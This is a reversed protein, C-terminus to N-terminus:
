SHSASQLQLFALARIGLGGVGQLEVVQPLPADGDTHDKPYGDLQVLHGHPILRLEDEGLYAWSPRLILSM